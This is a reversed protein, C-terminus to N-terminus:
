GFLGHLFWRPRGGTRADARGDESFGERFMLFRRGDQTEVRFYDRARADGRERWWEPGRRDPGDLRTVTRAVHRWMFRAPPGDPVAHIVGIEEPPDLLREPCEGSTDIEEDWGGTGRAGAAGAGTGGAETTGAGTAGAVGAGTAVPATVGAAPVWREAREPIHSSVFEPRRVAAAGLRAGLRDILVSADPGDRMDGLSDGQSAALTESVLAEVGLADFGFEARWDGVREGLLRMVHAVSRSAVTLGVQASARGGDTRFGEARLLRVGEGTRELRGMLDRVMPELCALVTDVDFVPEALGRMVRPREQARAPDFPVALTGLAEDLRALVDQSAGISRGLYDEWTDDRPDRRRSKAGFRKKLAPRPLDALQGVTKLGLRHLLAVPEPALRLAAVPLPALCARLTQGDAQSFAEQPGPSGHRALAHAAGHNPAIALRVTLGLASLRRDIDALLGTEGGFLHACGTADLAIGHTGDTRTLPSWRRSWAALRELARAEHEPDGYAWALDRHAAMTDTARQGPAIGLAAARADVDHVLDGRPTGVLLAFPAEAGTQADTQAGSGDKPEPSAECAPGSPAFPSSRAARERRRVRHWTELPWHPFWACVIRREHAGRMM